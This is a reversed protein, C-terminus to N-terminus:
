RKVDVSGVRYHRGYAWMAPYKRAQSLGNIENFVFIIIFILIPLLTWITLLFYKTFNWSYREKVVEVCTSKM